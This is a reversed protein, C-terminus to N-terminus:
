FAGLDVVQRAMFTDPTSIDQKVCGTVVLEIVPGENDPLTRPDRPWVPLLLTTKPWM